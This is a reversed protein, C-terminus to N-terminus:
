IGSGCGIDLVAKGSVDGAEKMAVDYRVFIAKRFVRNFWRWVPADSNYISAFNQSDWEFRHKVEGLKSM